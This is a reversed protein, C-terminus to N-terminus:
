FSVIGGRIRLQIKNLNDQTIMNSLSKTYKLVVGYM